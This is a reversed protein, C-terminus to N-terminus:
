LPTADAHDGLHTEERCPFVGRQIGGYMKAHRQSSDSMMTHELMSMDDRAFEHQIVSGLRIAPDIEIHLDVFGLVCISTDGILQHEEAQDDVDWTLTVLQYM